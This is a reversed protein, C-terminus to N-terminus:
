AALPTQAQRKDYWEDIKEYLEDPHIFIVLDREERTVYGTDVMQDLLRALTQYPEFECSVLIPIERAGGRTIIVFMEFLEDLTGAGGDAFYIADAFEVMAFNRGHFDGHELTVDQFEWKERFKLTHPVVLKAGVTVAGEFWGGELAARMWSPGGGTQVIYRRAQKKMFLRVAESFAPTSSDPGKAGGCVVLVRREPHAEKLRSIVKASVSTQAFMSSIYQAKASPVGTARLLWPTLTFVIALASEALRQKFTPRPLVARRDKWGRKSKVLM